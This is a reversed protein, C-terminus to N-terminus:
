RIRYLSFYCKSVNTNSNAIDRSDTHYFWSRVVDGVALLMTGSTSLRADQNTMETNGYLFSASDTPDSDNVTCFIYGNLANLSWNRTIASNFCYLGAQDVVFRYDSGIAQYSIGIGPDDEVEYSITQYTSAIIDQRLKKSRFTYALKQRPILSIWISGDYYCITNETTDYVVLGTAPSGSTIADRQITTMRPPLFGLTTSTMELQASADVTSDGIGVTSDVTVDGIVSLSGCQANGTINATQSSIEGSNVFVDNGFHADKAVGIGGQTTFSGSTINTANTIDDVGLKTPTSVETSTIRLKEVTDSGDHVQFVLEGGDIISGTKRLQSEINTIETEGGEPGVYSSQSGIRQSDALRIPQVQKRLSIIPNVNDTSTSIAQLNEVAGGIDGGGPGPQWEGELSNWIITDGEEVGSLDGLQTSNLQDANFIPTPATEVIDQITESLPKISFTTM